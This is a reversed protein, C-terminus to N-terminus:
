AGSEQEGGENSGQNIKNKFKSYILEIGVFHTRETEGCFRDILPCGKRWGKKKRISTLQLTFLLWYNSEVFGFGLFFIM